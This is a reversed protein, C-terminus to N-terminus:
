IEDLKVIGQYRWLLRNWNPFEVKLEIRVYTIWYFTM